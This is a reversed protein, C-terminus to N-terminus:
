HNGLSLTPNSTEISVANKEDPVEYRYLKSAYLNFKSVHAFSKNLLTSYSTGIHIMITTHLAIRFLSICSLFFCINRTLFLFLIKDEQAASKVKPRLMTRLDETVPIYKTTTVEIFM